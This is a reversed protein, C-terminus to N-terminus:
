RSFGHAPLPQNGRNQFFLMYELALACKEDADAANIRRSLTEDARAQCLRHLRMTELDCEDVDVTPEIKRRNAEARAIRGPMKIFMPDAEVCHERLEDPRQDAIARNFDLGIEGLLGGPNIAFMTVFETVDIHHQEFADEEEFALMSVTQIERDPNFARELRSQPARDRASLFAKRRRFCDTGEFRDVEGGLANVKLAVVRM